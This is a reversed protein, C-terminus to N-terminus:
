TSKNAPVEVLNHFTCASVLLHRRERQKASCVGLCLSQLPMTLAAPQTLLSAAIREAPFSYSSTSRLSICFGCALQSSLLRSGLKGAGRGCGGWAPAERSAQQLWRTEPGGAAPLSSSSSLPLSSPPSPSPAAPLSLPDRTPPPPALAPRPWPSARPSPASPRPRLPPAGAAGAQRGGGGRRRGTVM